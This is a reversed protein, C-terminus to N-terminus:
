KGRRVGIEVCKSQPDYISCGLVPMFGIAPREGKLIAVIAKEGDNDGAHGREATIGGNYDLKGLGDYVLIFGSTTAGFRAAEAGDEDCQVKVGPIAAAASWLDTHAWEDSTGRPKYFLVSARVRGQCQAMVKALEGVGAQTCPCRPHAFMVLTAIGPERPIRSAAPWAAPVPLTLGPVNEYKWLVAM